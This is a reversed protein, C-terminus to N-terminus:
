DVDPFFFAHNAETMKNINKIDREIKEELTEWIKFQTKLPNKLIVKTKPSIEVAGRVIGETLAVTYDKFINIRKGNILAKAIKPGFPTKVWELTMGSFSLPQGFHALTECLTRLLLGNVKVTYISWGHTDKMDFVRPISNMIDRRNINGIPFNEGNMSSVHMALDTGAKERLADAIFYAWKRSGSKDEEKLDSYGVDENLWERGYMKDLEYDADEVLSKVEQDEGNYKVPVLQYSVVKLPKGKELDVVIRGLYKTHFGAQVVPVKVDRKNKEYLPEFLTTHSHGGVVLDINSTKKALKLDRNVGIHTLAIIFDNNRKKLIKEYDQATKYPSEITSGDLTWSFFFDSTTLGLIAIKMGDIELEKYAQLKDRINPYKSSSAVNAALFSFNLDTNKLIDDLGQAGMLYDHNGLAVADYGINNQVNFSKQGKDAMYYINGELFDGGDLTITSIGEKKAADKYYDILAKLRSSGGVESDHNTNNLFSHTDNTHLIQVLKAHADSFTLSVGLSLALFSTKLM